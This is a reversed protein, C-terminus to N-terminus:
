PQFRTAAFPAPDCFPAQGVMMEALLRGTAPGLTFGHHAHGFALWLGGHRSAPGIVPLMDPLCPRAGRWPEADLRHGLPMLRRAVREARDLQWSDSPADRAALEIGTTLRIGRAMPTLVFGAEVDCVPHRPVAGEAPAYHMHYGRKFALPFRYGLRGCLDNSWPGLTVVAEPARWGEAGAPLRWGAGDHELCNADAHLFQGGRATFLAAYARTVAGPDSVTAPDRWHVAGAVIGPLLGPERARLAAEDLLDYALDYSALEEAARAAEQFGRRSRYLEIWGEGRMLAETGAAKSWHRHEDICREILPLIARGLRELRDPASNWWYRALWPAMRLLTAPRYRVAISRNSAFAALTALSRPFAYPVVSAREILGANGHSTEAGPEGRDVLLVNRGREQLHLAASVGVIGAGLVIVDAQREATTM